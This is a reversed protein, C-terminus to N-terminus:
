FRAGHPWALLVALLLRQCQCAAAWVLWWAAQLHQQWRQRCCTLAGQEQGAQLLAGQEQLVSRWCAPLAQATVSRCWYQWGSQMQQLLLCSLLGLMLAWLLAM